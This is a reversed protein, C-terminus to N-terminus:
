SAFSRRFRVLRLGAWQTSQGNEHLTTPEVSVLGADTLEQTERVAADVARRVDPYHGDHFLLYAESALLPLVGEIDRRVFDYTHNADIFAFDFEAGTQRAVEPLVDPSPGQFM